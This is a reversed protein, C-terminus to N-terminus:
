GPGCSTNSKLYRQKQYKVNGRIHENYEYGMSDIVQRVSYGLSFYYNMRMMEDPSFISSYRQIDPFEYKSSIETWTIGRRIKQIFDYGLNYEKSIKKPSLGSQLLDCVLEVEYRTHTTLNCTEPEHKTPMKLGTIYAHINNESYSAWELNSPDLNLKNGDIHNIVAKNEPNSIYAMAYLRHLRRTKYNGRSGLQINISYYGRNSIFAKLLYETKINYVKCDPTIIYNTEIDDINIQKGRIGNSLTIWVRFEIYPTNDYEILTISM